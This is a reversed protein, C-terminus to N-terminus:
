QHGQAIIEEIKDLSIVYKEKIRFNYDKFSLKQLAFSKKNKIIEAIRDSFPNFYIQKQTLFDKQFHDLDILLYNINNSKMFNAVDDLNDSYYARFFQMTRDQILKWHEDHFPNSAEYFVYATRKAFLPINDAIGMPYAAVVVDEPLSSLYTLMPRDYSYNKMSMSRSFDASLFIGLTVLFIALLYPIKSRTQKLLKLLINLVSFVAIASILGFDAIYREPFYLKIFLSDALLYLGIGSVLYFIIEKPVLVLNYKIKAFILGSM